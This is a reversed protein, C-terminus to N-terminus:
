REDVIEAFGVELNQIGSEIMMLRWNVLVQSLNRM